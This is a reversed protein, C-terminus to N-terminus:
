QHESDEDAVTQQSSHSFSLQSRVIKWNKSSSRLLCLSRKKYGNHNDTIIDAINQPNIKMKKEAENSKKWHVQTHEMCGCIVM